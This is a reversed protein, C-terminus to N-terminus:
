ASPWPPRNSIRSNLSATSPHAINAVEGIITGTVGGGYYLGYCAYYGDEGVGLAGRYSLVQNGDVWVDLQGANPHPVVRYVVDHPTDFSLATRFRKVNGGPNTTIGWEGNGFRRFAFVPSGGNPMHMQMHSGGTKQAKMGAPDSWSRDLFTAAGWYQVGNKLPHQKDHLESRRKDSPDNQGKDKPTDHLEFRSKTQTTRWCYDMNANWTSGTCVTWQQGLWPAYKPTYGNVLTSKYQSYSPDSTAQAGLPQAISSLPRLINSQPLPRLIQASAPGGIVLGAGAVFFDRRSIDVIREKGRARVPAEGPM